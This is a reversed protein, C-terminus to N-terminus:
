KGAPPPITHPRQSQYTQLRARIAAELEPQPQKGTQLLALAEQAVQIALPFNGQAAHAAALVDLLMPPRKGGVLELASHAYRLAAEGDRLDARTALLWALQQRAPWHRSQLQLVQEFERKAEAGRGLRALLLAHNHRTNPNQPDSALALQYHPLAEALLGQKALLGGLNAQALANTPALAVAERLVQTAQPDRGAMALYAAQDVRANSDHPALRAAEGLHEAAEGYNGRAAQAIGLFKRHRPVTPFEQAHQLVMAYAERSVRGDPDVAFARTMYALALAEHGLDAHAWALNLLPRQEYHIRLAEEFHPIAEGSRGRAQLAAGLNNLATRNGTTVSIARTFVTIGNEWFQLQQHTVGACLLLVALGLAAGWRLRGAQAQAWDSGAWVLMLFVGTLPLYTYRDAHAQEGVQVLGIVPVLVGLFWLWGVILYPRRRVQWLCLGTVLGLLLSAPLWKALPVGPPLPYLVCLDVPLFTQALYTGYASVSTQLRWLLPVGGLESLTGVRHQSYVTSISLVLVVGFLPLKERLLGWLVPWGVRRAGGEESFPAFRRLPWFDLLLLVCPLTVIMPKSAIGLVFGAFMTLYSRLGPQVVYRAYAWLTFFFFFGCLVDKREAIWAVSEVHLPHWAFLAAAMASPWLAGSLRQLALFAMVVAACHILLNVLHHGGAVLGFLEMDLMHSLWSLPRWYDIDASTFAWQIGEWTLGPAVHLNNTVFVDDDYDMFECTVVPLFILFTLLALGVAIRALLVGNTDPPGATTPSNATPRAAQPLDM